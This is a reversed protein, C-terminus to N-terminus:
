KSHEKTVNIDEETDDTSTTEAATREAKRNKYWKIGKRVGIVAGAIVTSLIAFGAVTGAASSGSSEENVETENTEEVIEENYNMEENM